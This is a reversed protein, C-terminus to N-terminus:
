TARRAPRLLRSEARKIEATANKGAAFLPDERDTERNEQTRDGTNGLLAGRLKGRNKAM